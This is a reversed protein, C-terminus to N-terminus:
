FEDDDLPPEGPPVDDLARAYAGAEPAAQAEPAAVPAPDPQAAPATPQPVAPVPADSQPASPPEPADPKRAPQEVVEDKAADKAADKAPAKGARSRRASTIPVAPAPPEDGSPEGAVELDQVIATIDDLEASLADIAAQIAARQVRRVALTAGSGGTAEDIAAAVTLAGDTDVTRSEDGEAVTWVSGGDIQEVYLAAIQQPAM